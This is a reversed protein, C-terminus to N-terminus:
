DSNTGYEDGDRILRAIEQKRKKIREKGVIYPSYADYKEVIRAARDREEERVREILEMLNVILEDQAEDM